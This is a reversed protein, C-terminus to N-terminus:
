RQGVLRKVIAARVDKVARYGAPVIRTVEFLSYDHAAVLPVPGSLVHAKAAFIAEVARKRGAVPADSPLEEHLALSSFRRGAEVERRVKLAESRSRLNDIDFYRREPTRFDRKHQNYFREIASSSVVAKNGPSDIGCGAVVLVVGIAGIALTLRLRRHQPTGRASVARCM